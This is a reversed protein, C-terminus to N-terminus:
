PATAGAPAGARPAGAAPMVRVGALALAAVAAFVVFGLTYGSESPLAAGATGGDGSSSRSTLLASAVQAGLAGGVTRAITNVGIAVGTSRPEVADVVLNGLAAFALGYGAGILAGTLYFDWRSGHAAALWCFAVVACGAGAQLPARAGFRVTMRGALPSFALMLAAVPVMVLGAGTPSAGFGYGSDAPTQVFRPILTISGFMAGGVLFALVNAAAFAPRRLLRLDVLPDAVRLEVAGFACLLVAAGALLGAVRPSGWGWANGQSIGLLLCVLAASLTGAGGLDVSGGVAGGATRRGHPSPAGSAATSVAAPAGAPLVRVGALAALALALTTWSPAQTGFADVLPGAVIMGASGGVGFMASLVAVVRPVRAAAVSTRVIGVALPFVGGAVGQLARGTVLVGPSGARTGLAAVLAGVAFSGLCWVLVRRYGRADGLRGAIPTAIASALMFSTLVWAVGTSSTDLDGQLAPLATIVVTQALSVGFAAALLAAVAM